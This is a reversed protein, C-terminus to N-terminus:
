AFACVLTLQPPTGVGTDRARALLEDRRSEVAAPVADPYARSIAEELRSVMPSDGAPPSDNADDFRHRVDLGAAAVMTDIEARTFVSRHYEGAARHLEAMLAHLDRQTQQAPTLDDAYMECLILTGGPTVVDRLQRLVDGVGELHHLANAISVTDFPGAAPDRFFDRIPAAVFRVSDTGMLSIFDQGAEQKIDLGVVSQWSRCGDILLRTFRGGGCAIDLVNGADYAALFEQLDQM